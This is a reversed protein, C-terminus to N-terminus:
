NKAFVLEFVDERNRGIEDHEYRARLDRIKSMFVDVLEKKIIIQHQAINQVIYDYFKTFVAASKLTRYIEQETPETNYFRKRLASFSDTDEIHTDPTLDDIYM